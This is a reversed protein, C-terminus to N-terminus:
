FRAQVLLSFGIISTVNNEEFVREAVGREDDSYKTRNKDLTYQLEGLLTFGDALDWRITPKVTVIDYADEGPPLIELDGIDRVVIISQEGVANPIDTPGQYTAPHKYGGIVGLTLHPGAFYYDIGAAAFWEDTVEADDPFAYYPALGPVDFLIYPMQRFVFDSHLRMVKYKFRLNLNGAMAPQYITTDPDDWDLMMQERYTAELSIVHSFGGDYPEPEVARRANAMDRRYLRFDVSDGVPLGSRWSVRTSVGHAEMTEGGIESDVSQPPFVGKEFLGGNVEWMVTRGFDLGFGGLFGYYTDVENIDENLLRAAKLGGLVYGGLGANAAAGFDWRLRFGPVPNTNTPWTVNGGWSIDYAYGLRWRDSDIPFLTLAIRDGSMAAADFYYNLQLYSGDDQLQTETDWTAEDVVNELQIVLAAELDLHAFYSKMRKYLVLHALTEYGTSAQNFNDFFAENGTYHFGARPSRDEADAMLNDDSFAFTIWTDMFDGAWAATAITGTFALVLIFCAFRKVFAEPYHTNLRFREAGGRM